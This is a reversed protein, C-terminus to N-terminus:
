SSAPADAVAVADLQLRAGPSALADVQMWTSAPATGRPLFARLGTELEPLDAADALQLTLKVIRDPSSGARALAGELEDLVAALDAGELGSLFALAGATVSEAADATGPQRRVTWGPANASAVAFAEVEVLFEPRPLERMVFASSAPPAAAVDPAHERFFAREVERYVPLAAVDKVFVNTKLLNALSGGTEEVAIRVKDLVVRCQEALDGSEVRLTDHDLAQCGSVVLLNGISQSRAFKPHEKPVHPYALERGAWREPRYTVEWGPRNRDLAAVAEYQVRLDPRALAPVVMLTAAPPTAVLQPAHREYLETETRRVSGYDELSTLLFFTKVVNALTSGASELAVRAAELALEVQEEVRAPAPEAGREATCGSAFLVNGVAVARPTQRVDWGM